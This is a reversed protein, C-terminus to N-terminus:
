RIPGYGPTERIEDPSDGDELDVCGGGKVYAFIGISKFGAAWLIRRALAVSNNVAVHIRDANGGHQDEQWIEVVGDATMSTEIRAQHPIFWFGDKASVDADPALSVIGKAVANDVAEEATPVDSPGPPYQHDFDKVGAILMDRRSAPSIEACPALKARVASVTKGDVGCVRGIERDSRSADQRLETEILARKAATDLKPEFDLTDTM